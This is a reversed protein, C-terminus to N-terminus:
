SSFLNLKWAGDEFVMELERSKGEAYEVGIITGARTGFVEKVKPKAGVTKRLTEVAKARESDGKKRGAAFDQQIRRQTQASLGAWVKDQDGGELAALLQEFAARAAAQDEPGVVPPLDPNRACGALAPLVMAWAAAFQLLKSV